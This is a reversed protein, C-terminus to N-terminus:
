RPKRPERCKALKEKEKYIETCRHVDRERLFFPSSCYDKHLNELLTSLDQCDELDKRQM